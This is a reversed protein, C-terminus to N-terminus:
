ANCIENDKFDQMVFGSWSMKANSVRVKDALGRVLFLRIKEVVPGFCKVVRAGYSGMCGHPVNTAVLVFDQTRLPLRTLLLAKQHLSM